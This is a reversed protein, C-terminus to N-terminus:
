AEVRGPAVPRNLIQSSIGAALGKADAELTARASAAQRSVDERAAAIQAEAQKKAEAVLQQRSAKLERRRAEVRQYAAARAARIKAEYSGVREDVQGLMMKAEKSRGIGLREREELVRKIPRFLTRNLIFILFIVSIFVFLFSGDITLISDGAAALVVNPPSM